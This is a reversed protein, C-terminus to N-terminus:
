IECTDLSRSSAGIDLSNNKNKSDNQCLIKAKFIQFQLNEEM